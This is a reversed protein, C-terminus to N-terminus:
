ANKRAVAKLSKTWLKRIKKLFSIDSERLWIFWVVKNIWSLQTGAGTFM